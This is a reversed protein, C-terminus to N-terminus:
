WYGREPGCAYASGRLGLALVTEIASIPIASRVAAPKITAACAVRGPSGRSGVIDPQRTASPGAEYEAWNTVKFEMKRYGTVAVPMTNSPCQAFIMHNSIEGM